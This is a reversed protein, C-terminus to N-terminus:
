LYSDINIKRELSAIKDQQTTQTEVTEWNRTLALPFCGVLFIAEM